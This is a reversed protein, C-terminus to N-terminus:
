KEKYYATFHHHSKRKNEPPPTMYDGYLARLYEDYREVAMFKKGEFELRTFSTFVEKEVINKKGYDACTVGAYKSSEFDISKYFKDIKKIQKNANFLRTWLFYCFRFPQYWWARSKTVRFKKRGSVILKKRARAKKDFNKEAEQRNNGLGEVPFIDVYVGLPCGYRDATNEYLDTDRDCAKAFLYCYRKDTESSVFYFPTDNNKCYQVFKDYDPRPMAIDIDDDWPIFGGHRIAGILTGFALTYRLSQESCIKDIQEMVRLAIEKLNDPSVIKREM